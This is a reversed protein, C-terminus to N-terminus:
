SPSFIQRNRQTESRDETNWPLDLIQRHGVGALDPHRVSEEPVLLDTPKVGNEGGIEVHSDKGITINEVTDPSSWALINESDSM